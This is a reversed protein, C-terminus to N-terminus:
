SGKLARHKPMADRNPYSERYRELIAHTGGRVIERGWLPPKRRTKTTAPQRMSQGYGRIQRRHRAIRPFALQNETVQDTVRHAVRSSALPDSNRRRSEGISHLHPDAIATRANRFGFALANEFREIATFL